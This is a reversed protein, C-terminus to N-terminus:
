EEEVRDLIGYKETQRQFSYVLRAMESVEEKDHDDYMLGIYKLVCNWKCYWGFWGGNILPQRVAYWKHKISNDCFACLGDFHMTEGTEPDTDFYDSLLMRDKGKRLEKLTIGKVPNSPGFKKFRELDKVTLSFDKLSNMITFKQEQSLGKLGKLIEKKNELEIYIYKETVGKIADKTVVERQVDSFSKAMINVIEEDSPLDFNINKKLVLDKVKPLPNSMVLWGPKPAWKKIVYRLKDKVFRYVISNQKALSHDRIDVIEERNQPNFISFIRNLGFSLNDQKESFSYEVVDIMIRRFTYGKFFQSIYRLNQDTFHPNFFMSEYLSLQSGEIEEGYKDKNKWRELVVKVMAVSKPNFKQIRAILFALFQESQAESFRESEIKLNTIKKTFEVLDGSKILNIYEM